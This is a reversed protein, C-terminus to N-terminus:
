CPLSLVKGASNLDVAASFNGQFALSKSINSITVIWCIDDMTSPVPFTLTTVNFGVITMQSDLAQCNSGYRIMSTVNDHLQLFNVSIFNYKKPSQQPDTFLFQVTLHAYAAHILTYQMVRM